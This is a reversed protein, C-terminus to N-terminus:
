PRLVAVTEVQAYAGFVGYAGDLGEQLSGDAMFAALNPDFGEIRVYHEGGQFDEHPVVRITTDRTVGEWMLAGSVFVRYLVAGASPSWSIRLGDVRVTDIRGPVTVAGTIRHDETEVALAYARGPEVTFPVAEYNFMRRRQEGDNLPWLTDVPALPTDGLRVDADRVYSAEDYDPTEPAAVRTVLARAASDGAQLLVVVSLADPTEVDPATFHSDGCGALLAALVLALFPLSASQRM